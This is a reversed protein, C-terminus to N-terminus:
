AITTSTSARELSSAAEAASFAYRGQKFILPDGQFRECRQVRGIFIVHDGAEETRETQCEFHAIAGRLLPVGSQGFTWQADTMPQSGTMAFCASVGQQETSLVSVSFRGAHRFAELKASERRISWLVMPPDLSLASFSNITMAFSAGEHHAAVIAVGTAFQGLCRRFIAPSEAPCAEELSYSEAM